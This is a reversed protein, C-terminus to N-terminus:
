LDGCPWPVIGWFASLHPQCNPVQLLNPSVVLIYAMLLNWVFGQTDVKRLMIMAISVSSNNYDPRLIRNNFDLSLIANNNLSLNLLNDSSFSNPVNNIASAPHRFRHEDFPLRPWFLLGLVPKPAHPRPSMSKRSQSGNGSGDNDSNVGCKM